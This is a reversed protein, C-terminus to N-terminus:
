GGDLRQGSSALLSAGLLSTADKRGDLECTADRMEIGIGVIAVEM